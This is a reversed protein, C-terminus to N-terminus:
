PHRSYPYLISSHHNKIDCWIQWIPWISRLNLSSQWAAHDLSTWAMWEGTEGAIKEQFFWDRKLNKDEAATWSSVPNGPFQDHALNRLLLVGSTQALGPTSFISYIVPAILNRETSTAITKRPLVVWQSPIHSGTFNEQALRMCVVPRIYLAHVREPWPTLDEKQGSEQFNSTM